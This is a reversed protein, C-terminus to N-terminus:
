PPKIHSHIWLIDPPLRVAHTHIRIGIPLQPANSLNQSHVRSVQSCQQQLTYHSFRSHSLIQESLLDLSCGWGM